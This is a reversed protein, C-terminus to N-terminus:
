AVAPILQNLSLKSFAKVMPEVDIDGHEGHAADHDGQLASVAYAHSDDVHHDHGVEAEHVHAPGSAMPGPVHVHLGSVGLIAVALCLTVILAQRLMRAPDHCLPSRGPWVDARGSPIM